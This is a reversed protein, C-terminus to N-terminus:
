CTPNGRYVKGGSDVCLYANGAGSLNLRFGDWQVSYQFNPTLSNENFTYYTYADDQWIVTAGKREPHSLHQWGSVKDQFRNSTFFTFSLLAPHDWTDYSGTVNGNNSMNLRTNGTLNLTDGSKNVKTNDPASSGGGAKGIPEDICGSVVVLLLLLCIYKM